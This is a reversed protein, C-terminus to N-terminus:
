GFVAADPGLEEAAADVVEVEVEAHLDDLLAAGRAGFVAAEDAEGVQLRSQGLRLADAAAHADGVVIDLAGDIGQRGEARAEGDHLNAMAAQDAADGLFEVGVLAGDELGDLQEAVDGQGHQLDIEVPLAGARM